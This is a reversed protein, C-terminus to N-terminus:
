VILYDHAQIHWDTSVQAHANADNVAFGGNTNALWDSLAGSDSRWLIDERGDGNYDGTGAIHWNTPATTYANADNSTFGGNANALWDSLAGSDSRWLIDERGDGNFDGTGAIHWSIPATAYANADNSTFGGNANALWDSLAGSDSRWLIDERGDGNFDGTGAVKWSTSVTTYANADNSAFGGNANALWDSLAGSDSRWLLDERGDGNFDGTSVVHWSTAVKTFANADNAAFGGNSNALWDSLSGDSNRWLIDSRGDGNFDGTGAMKWSTPVTGYANGDNGAFGGNANALWDSLAGSDSQWLIDSRGDGNFDNHVTSKLTLDVGGGAAATAIFHGVPANQFILTGGSYTLVSGSLQYHFTALNVDTITIREGLALDAITDGSLGAATDRFVDNGAGGTLLDTGLGGTLVDNGNGGEIIDNGSLGVLLDNGDLGRLTGNALIDNDSANGVALTSTSGFRLVEVNDPLTYQALYSTVQDIGENPLETVVDGVNDVNYYDNGRGGVMTDAGEVGALNDDGDFGYLVDDGGGGFLHNPGNNGEIRQAFDNGTLDLYVTSSPDSAKLLEIEATSSLSYSTLGTATSVLVTDNGEGTLETVIDGPNDVVYTDNGAGGIMTDAGAGGDIVNNGSNGVIENALANGEAHLNSVGLLTLNEINPSLVYDVTTEVIDTGGSASAEGTVDRIDDVVYVDNGDGGYMADHGAGGDLRDDGTGGRLIDDGTGGHLTDNGGNGHLVDAGATGNITESTNLGETPAVATPNDIRCLTGHIGDWAICFFFKSDPGVTLAEGSGSAGFGTPVGAVAIVAVTSWDTTAIKTISINYQADNAIVYLYDATADFAVGLIHTLGTLTTIRNLDGDLIDLGISPEVYAVLSGDASFASLDSAPGAVGRTADLHVSGDPSESYVQNPGSVNFGNTLLIHRRDSSAMVIPGQASESTLFSFEGTDPNLTYTTTAGSGRIDTTVIATDDQFMAVDQFPGEIGGFQMGFDTVHHTALDVKHVSFTMTGVAFSTKDEVALLFSGDPSVDIGALPAAVTITDVIQGTITDYVSINGNAGAIYTVTGDANMAIDSVTATVISSSASFQAVTM